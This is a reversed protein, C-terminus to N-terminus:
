RSRPSERDQKDGKRDPRDAKPSSAAPAGTTPPSSPKVGRKGGRTGDNYVADDCGGGPMPQVAMIQGDKGTSDPCAGGFGAGGRGQASATDAALVLGALALAAGAAMATCMGTM